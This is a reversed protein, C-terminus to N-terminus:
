MILGQHVNTTSTRTAGRNWIPRRTTMKSGVGLDRTSVDGSEFQLPEKKEGGRNWIQRRTPPTKTDERLSATADAAASSVDDSTTSLRSRISAFGDDSRESTSRGTGSQVSADENSSNTRIRNWFRSRPPISPKPENPETVVDSNANSWGTNWLQKARLLLGENNNQAAAARDAFDQKVQQVVNLKPAVGGRLGFAMIISPPPLVTQLAQHLSIGGKHCAVTIQSEYIWLSRSSELLTDVNAPPYSQLLRLCTSFDGKLLDERVLMVMTVCVYRLFNEKHSSAFMSDWLRITDPLLFERSLLTTLWRIAYFSADIGCDELHEQVEPDHTKLLNQMNDIRGQIGTTSSDLTPVFVDRMDDMMLTHFLFYTDAEAHNAWDSNHDNALVYYITGVIENMGQVYRVQFRSDFLLSIFAFVFLKLISM